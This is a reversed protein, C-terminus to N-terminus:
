ELRARAAGGEVQALGRGFRDAGDRHVKGEVDEFAL